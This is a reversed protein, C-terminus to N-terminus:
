THSHIGMWWRCRDVVDCFCCNSYFVQCSAVELTCLSHDCLLSSFLNDDSLCNLVISFCQGFYLFTIRVVHTVGDGSDVVLGTLLGALWAVWYRIVIVTDKHWNM